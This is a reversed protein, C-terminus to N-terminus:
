ESAGEERTIVIPGGDCRACFRVSLPTGDKRKCTLCERNTMQVDCRPCKHYECADPPTQWHLDITLEPM